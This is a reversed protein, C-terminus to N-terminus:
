EVDNMSTETVREWKGGIFDFNARLRKISDWKGKAIMFPNVEFVGRYGTRFLLGNDVAKKIYRDIQPLSVKCDECMIEKVRKNITACQPKGDNTWELFKSLSLVFSTPVDHIQNFAMMTEYYVKIFEPEASTKVITKQKYDLIEGTTVDILTEEHTYFATNKEREAIMTM